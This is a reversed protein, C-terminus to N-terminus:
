EEPKEARNQAKGGWSISVKGQSAQQLEKNIASMLDDGSGASLRAQKEILRGLTNLARDLTRDELTGAHYYSRSSGEGESFYVKTQRDAYLTAEEHTRDAVWREVEELKREGCKLAQCYGPKGELEGRVYITGCDPNTCKYKIFEEALKKKYYSDWKRQWGSLYTVLKAKLLYIEHQLNYTEAEIQDEYIEREEVSLVRSYLGHKRGNQASIAKGEATRPGTNKGGCFKCRGRGPHETGMGALSRCFGGGKKETKKGGCCLVPNGQRLEIRNKEDAKPHLKLKAEMDYPDPIQAPTGRLDAM